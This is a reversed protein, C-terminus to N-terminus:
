GRLRDAVTVVGAGALGYYLGMVPDLGLVGGLGSLFGVAACAVITIAGQMDHAFARKILETAGVCSAAVFAAGSVLEM